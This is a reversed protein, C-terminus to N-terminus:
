EDTAEKYFHHVAGDSFSYEWNGWKTPQRDSRFAICGDTTDEIEFAYEVALRTSDSITKRGYAFQGPNTIVEKVTNGFRGDDLRNFIVSAVNVKSDFNCQFTETEVTRQILYIEEETLVDYITEPIDLFNAYKEILRKYQIYWNEKNACYNLESMKGDFEHRAASCLEEFTPEKIITNIKTDSYLSVDIPMAISELYSENITVENQNINKRNNSECYFSIVVCVMFGFMGLIAFLCFWIKMYTKLEENKNNMKGGM